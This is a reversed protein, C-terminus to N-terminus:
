PVVQTAQCWSGRDVYVTGATGSNEYQVSLTGPDSAPLEITGSVHVPWVTTIVMVTGGSVPGITTTAGQAVSNQSATGGKGITGGFTGYTVSSGSFVFQLSIAASTSTAHYFLDCAVTYNTAATSNPLAFQLCNTGYCVGAFGAGNALGATPMDLRVPPPGCLVNTGDSVLSSGGCGSVSSPMAYLSWFPHTSTTGQQLFANPTGSNPLASEQYPSSANAFVICGPSICPWAAVPVGGGGANNMLWRNASTDAWLTDTTSSGAIANGETSNLGSGPAQALLRTPAALFIALLAGAVAVARVVRIRKVDIM